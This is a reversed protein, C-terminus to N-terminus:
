ESIEYFLLIANDFSIYKEEKVLSDNFEYWKNNSINKLYASNHGGNTCGNHCIFGKLIYKYKFYKLKDIKNTELIEPIDVYHRYIENKEGFRKLNIILIKPFNIISTSYSIEISNCM